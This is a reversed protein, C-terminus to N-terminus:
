DKLVLRSKVTIGVATVEGYELDLPVNIEMKKGNRRSNKDKGNLKSIYSM